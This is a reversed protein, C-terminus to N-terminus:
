WKRSELSLHTLYLFFGSLSFFFIFNYSRVGGRLFNEFHVPVSMYQLIQALIFNHTANGALALLTLGLLLCFGLLAAIVQNNTLSSSWLGVSLYAMVSLFTGLYGGGVLPWNSHGSLSLTLPFLFTLSLFFGVMILSSFFKGFIIQIPHLHSGLLLELTQNKKEESVLKMTLLPALFLFIFNMNGFLPILVTEDLTKTTHEGSALLYNFFLWGTILCFFGGLLYVFPSLFTDKLEKKLIIWIGTLAFTM